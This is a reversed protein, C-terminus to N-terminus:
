RAVQPSVRLVPNLLVTKPGADLSIQETLDLMNPKVGPPLHWDFHYLLTALVLEIHAHAFVIGPCVRRGAGFPIFGYDTGKFDVASGDFREPKFVEPEDWYSPDRGIAWSNVFVMTGRPVDYGLIKCSEQCEKPLPLPPAPHLRLTEKIVNKLYKVDTLDSETVKAKGRLLHRVELEAKHMVRPNRMLELM